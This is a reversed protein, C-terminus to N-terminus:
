IQKRLVRISNNEIISTDRVLEFKKKWNTNEELLWKITGFFPVNNENKVHDQHVKHDERYIAGISLQRFYQTSHHKEIYRYYKM